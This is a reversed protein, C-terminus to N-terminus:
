WAMLSRSIMKRMFKYQHVVVCISAFHIKPLLPVSASFVLYFRIVILQLFPMARYRKLGFVFTTSVRLQQPSTPQQTSPFVPMPLVVSEASM